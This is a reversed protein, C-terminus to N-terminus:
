RGTPNSIQRLGLFLQGLEILQVEERALLVRFEPFLDGAVLLLV